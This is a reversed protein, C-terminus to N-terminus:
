RYKEVSLKKRKWRCFFRMVLERSLMRNGITFIMRRLIFRTWRALTSFFNNIIAQFNGCLFLKSSLFIYFISLYYYYYYFAWRGHNERWSPYRTATKALNGKRRPEKGRKGLRTCARCNPRCIRTPTWCSTGVNGGIIRTSSEMFRPCGRMSSGTSTTWGAPVVPIVDGRTLGLRLIVTKKRKEGRRALLRDNEIAHRKDLLYLFIVFRSTDSRYRYDNKRLMSEKGQM